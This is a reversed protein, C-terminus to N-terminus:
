HYHYHNVNIYNRTDVPIVFHKIYRHIFIYQIVLVGDMVLDCASGLSAALQEPSPQQTELAARGEWQQPVQPATRYNQLLILHYFCKLFLLTM